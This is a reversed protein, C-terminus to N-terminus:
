ESRWYKDLMKETLCLQTAEAHVPVVLYRGIDRCRWRVCDDRKAGNCLRESRQVGIWELRTLSAGGLVTTQRVGLDVPNELCSYQLPKGHRGGSSRGLGPISGVDGTDGVNCASEKGASGDLFGRWNKVYARNDRITRTDNYLTRLEGFSRTKGEWKGVGRELRLGLM